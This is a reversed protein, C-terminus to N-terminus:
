QQLIGSNWLFGHDHSIHLMLAMQSTYDGLYIFVYIFSFMNPHEGGGLLLPFHLTIPIGQLHSNYIPTIEGRYITSFFLHNYDMSTSNYSSLGVKM